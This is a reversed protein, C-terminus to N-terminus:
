EREEDTVIGGEILRNLVGKAFDWEKRNQEYLEMGAETM